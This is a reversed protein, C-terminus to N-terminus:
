EHPGFRQLYDEMHLKRRTSASTMFRVSGFVPRQPGWARDFRGLCWFIGSYSNPDRGDLAYKNNLEIMTALAQGPTPSWALIMKGWLMRLYNNMRGTQVLERQAANWVPDHTRAQEFQQPTYLHQRKDHAHEALTKRAFDPLNDAHDYSDPFARCFQFGLERWTVLEDLFAESHQPLGWWGHRKGIPKGVIKEPSWDSQDFVAQAVEHASIHGFHLWPSLGSAASDDPHNRDQGYRSLGHRLFRQLCHRGAITGGRSEVPPVAHNIPLRALDIAAPDPMPWRKAIAAPIKARPGCLARLPQAQPFEFLHPRLSKHLHIRFSAATHFARRPDRLPYLGNSDVAELRVDLASAAAALMRPLFFCPYDDTVVVCARAALAALLGRGAGPAPEIYSLFTAPTPALAAANDAMGQAVFAHLRDSAWPYDCRLAELVVLPKGLDCALEVARQLGFNFVARRAAIMWYLVFDGGPRPARDNLGTIRGSPVTAAITIAAGRTRM